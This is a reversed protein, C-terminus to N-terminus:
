VCVADRRQGPEMPVSKALNRQVKEFVPRLKRLAFYQLWGRINRSVHWLNFILLVLVAADYRGDECHRTIYIWLVAIFLLGSTYALLLCATSLLLRAVIVDVTRYSRDIAGFVAVVAWPLASAVTVVVIWCRNVFNYISSRKVEEGPVCAQVAPIPKQDVVTQKTSVISGSSALRM